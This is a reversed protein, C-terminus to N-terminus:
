KGRDRLHPKWDEYIIKSYASISAVFNLRLDTLFTVNVQMFNCKKRDNVRKRRVIRTNPCRSIIINTNILKKMILLDILKYEFTRFISM